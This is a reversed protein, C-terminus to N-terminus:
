SDRFSMSMENTAYEAVGMDERSEGLAIEIISNEVGVRRGGERRLPLM